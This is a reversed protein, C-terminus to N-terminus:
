VSNDDIEIVAEEGDDENVDEKPSITVDSGEVFEDNESAEASEPTSGTSEDGNPEAQEAPMPLIVMGHDPRAQERESSEDSAEEIADSEDSLDVCKEGDMEPDNLRQKKTEPDIGTPDVASDDVSKVQVTESITM